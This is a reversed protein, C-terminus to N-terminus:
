RSLIATQLSQHKSFQKNLSIEEKLNNLIRLKELERKGENAKNQLTMFGQETWEVYNNCPYKYQCTLCNTMGSQKLYKRIGPYDGKPWKTLNYLCPM